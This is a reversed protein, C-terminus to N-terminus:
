YFYYNRCSHFFLSSTRGLKIELLNSLSVTHTHTHTHVCAHMHGHWPVWFLPCEEQHLFKGEAWIGTISYRGGSMGKVKFFRWLHVTKIYACVHSTCLSYTCVLECTFTSSMVTAFKNLLLNLCMWIRTTSLFSVAAHLRRVPVKQFSLLFLWQLTSCDCCQSSQWLTSPLQLWSLCCQTLSCFINDLIKRYINEM